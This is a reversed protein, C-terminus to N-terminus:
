KLFIWQFFMVVIGVFCVLGSFLLWRRETKTLDSLRPGGFFSFMKGEMLYRYRIRLTVLVVFLLGLLLLM